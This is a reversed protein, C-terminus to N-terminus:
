SSAKKAMKARVARIWSARDLEPLRCLDVERGARVRVLEGGNACAKIMPFGGAYGLLADRTSKTIKMWERLHAAGALYGGIVSARPCPQGKPMTIMMLGCSLKTSRERTVANVDYRSERWAIALLLDPDVKYAEGAVRAAALHVRATNVDLYTPATRRLAEADSTSTLWIVIWLAWEMM